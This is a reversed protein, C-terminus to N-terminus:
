CLASVGGGTNLLAGIKAQEPQALSFQHKPKFQSHFAATICSKEPLCKSSQESSDLGHHSSAQLECSM